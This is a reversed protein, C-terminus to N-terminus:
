ALVGSRDLDSKALVGFVLLVEELLKDIIEDTMTEGVRIQTEPPGACRKSTILSPKCYRNVALRRGTFRNM